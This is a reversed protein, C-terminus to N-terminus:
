ILKMSWFRLDTLVILVNRYAHV